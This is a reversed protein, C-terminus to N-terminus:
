FAGGDILKNDVFTKVSRQNPLKDESNSVMDNETIVWNYDLASESTSLVVDSVGGSSIITSYKGM